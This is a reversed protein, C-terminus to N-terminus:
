GDYDNLRLFDEAYKGLLIRRTTFFSPFKQSFWEKAIKRQIDKDNNKRGRAVRKNYEIFIKNRNVMLRNCNLNLNDITKTVLEETTSYINNPITVLKCNEIHAELKGTRKQFQFLNPFARIELPNLFEQHTISKHEKYSDCSLNKPTPYLTNKPSSGGLCVGVLNNWDLHLNHVWKMSSNYNSKDNIHEIRQKHTEIVKCECYACIEGQTSFISKKLIKYLIGRNYDSFCNTGKDWLSTPYKHAFVTLVNPPSSKLVKKM